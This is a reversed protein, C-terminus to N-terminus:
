REVTQCLQRMTRTSALVQLTTFSQNHRHTSSHKKTHTQLQWNASSVKRLTKGNWSNRHHHAPPNKHKKRAEVADDDDEQACEHRSRVHNSDSSAFLAIIVSYFTVPHFHFLKFHALLFPSLREVKGEVTGACLLAVCFHRIFVAGFCIVNTSHSCVRAGNPFLAFICDLASARISQLRFEWYENWGSIMEYAIFSRLCFSKAWREPSWRGSGGYGRMAGRGSRSSLQTRASRTLFIFKLNDIRLAFM